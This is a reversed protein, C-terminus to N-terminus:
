FFIDLVKVPTHSKLPLQQYKIKSDTIWTETMNWIEKQKKRAINTHTSLITLKM